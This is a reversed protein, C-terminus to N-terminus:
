QAIPQSVCQVAQKKKKQSTYPKLHAQMERYVAGDSSSIM